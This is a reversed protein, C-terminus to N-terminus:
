SAISHVLARSRQMGLVASGRMCDVSLCVHICGLGLRARCFFAGCHCCGACGVQLLEAALAQAQEAPFGAATESIVLLLAAAEEALGASSAAAAAAAAAAANSGAGATQSAAAAASCAAADSAAPGAGAAAAAASARVAAWRQQLFQWNPAAPDQAAIEKLLIYAGLAASSGTPTGALLLRYFRHYKHHL